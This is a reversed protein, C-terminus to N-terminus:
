EFSEPWKRATHYVHLIELTKGSVQCPVVFPIVAMILERTNPVRGPRGLFPHDSLYHIEKYVIDLINEAASPKDQLIYDFIEILDQEAEQSIQIEM